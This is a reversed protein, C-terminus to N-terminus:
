STEYLFDNYPYRKVHIQRVEDYLMRKLEEINDRKKASIFVTKQDRGAAM